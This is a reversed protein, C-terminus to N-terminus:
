IHILSLVIGGGIGFLGAILGAFAGTAAMALVLIVIDTM